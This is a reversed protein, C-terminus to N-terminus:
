TAWTSLFYLGKSVSQAYQNKSVTLKARTAYRLFCKHLEYDAFHFM